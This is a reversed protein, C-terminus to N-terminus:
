VMMAFRSSFNMRAASFFCFLSKAMGARIRSNSRNQDDVISYYRFPVMPFRTALM